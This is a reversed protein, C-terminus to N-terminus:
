RKWDVRLNKTDIESHRAGLSVIGWIVIILSIFVIM